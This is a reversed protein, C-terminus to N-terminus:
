AGIRQLQEQAKRYTYVSFYNPNRKIGAKVREATVVQSMLRGIRALVWCQYPSLPSEKDYSDDPKKPFAERFQPIRWFAIESWLYVTSRSVGLIQALHTKNTQFDLFLDDKTGNCDVRQRM